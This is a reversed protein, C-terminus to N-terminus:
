NIGQLEVMHKFEKTNIQLHKFDGSGMIKGKNLLYIVDASKITSLRHAIVVMTVKGKLKEFSEQIERETATDLSSTAEDMVLLDVEKYIERAIAIRQKQGGSVMMGNNGLKTEEKKILTNFYDVLSAMELCDIFKKMNEETKPAWFTINNFLTDNFIVPEQTIYGIRAQYSELNINNIDLGNVKMEGGDLFLIGTIINTLTTKGSGSQGVFAVTQNKGIELNIDQLFGTSDYSFNGSQIKVSNISPIKIGDRNKLKNSDLEQIFEKYNELSGSYNLFSNWSNQYAIIQTLSRYFFLLSLIIPALQADFYTVQVLMVVVVVLISLPEKTSVLISSFFGIRKSSKALDGITSVLRDTFLKLQGTARLYKFNHVQQILLGYFVHNSKTIKKSTVKTKKYLQIYILNSLTGGIVVLLAFQPNTLFALTVYVVISIMSQLSSFYYRYSTILREIEGGLSSQIKGSDIKVFYQYNLNGITKVAKTRVMKSLNTSLIVATYSEIFKAIGKLSFFLLIVLLVTVLNLDLGLSTLFDLFYEFNGLSEKNVTSSDGGVMQLLPIFMALGLGDMLGVFFSLILPHGLNPL